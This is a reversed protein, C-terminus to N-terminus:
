PAPTRAPRVAAAGYVGASRAAAAAWSWRARSRRYALEGRRRREGADGLAQALADELGRGDDEGVLWGTERDEVIGAPGPVACAITPLGSAMAEVLVIGFAEHRSPLVLADSGAFALPLDEHGHWGALFVDRAGTRRVAHLPHEGEWEGPYGGVIVLPARGPIRRAARAHAEILWPLRKVATYRGVYLLVPADGAFAALDAEAYRVSGPVGSEDWGRPEDVLWRRWLALRAAGALPRRDFAATDVGNGVTVFRDCPVGLLGSMEAVDLQASVLRECSAAWRRMREVWRAAHTWRAPAGARVVRLMALETGHLHGVRPVDPFARLAAEHIPTLHHLHLVDATAAGARDLADTWSRVLREYPEDAVAAFVRDPSGPRDEFSPQFPVAAALPDAAAHAPTYDVAYVDAGAFFTAAHGLAGPAGLSGVAISPRWGHAPLERCLARVVQASGGRPFFFLAHVVRRPPGGPAAAPRTSAIGM